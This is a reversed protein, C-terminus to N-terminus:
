HPQYLKRQIMYKHFIFKLKIQTKKRNTTLGGCVVRLGVELGHRQLVARHLEGPVVVLGRALLDEAALEVGVLDGGGGGESGGRGM